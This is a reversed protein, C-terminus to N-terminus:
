RLKKNLRLDVLVQAEKPIVVSFEGTPDIFGFKEGDDAYARGDRFSEVNLFRKEIVTNGFYDIIKWKGDELVAGLGKNFDRAGRYKFDVVKGGGRNIIGWVEGQSVKDTTGVMCFGEVFDYAFDYDANIVLEGRPNIFGWKGLINVRAYGDVFRTVEDYLFDIVVEGRRNIFGFRAGSDSMAALGESFPSGFGSTDPWTIVMRGLTDVYGRKERNMVWALGESYDTADLYNKPVIMKGKKNIFGFLRYESEKDVVDAIMAMGDHFFRVEDCMPVAVEGKDNMFAWFRASDAELYIKYFNETYGAVYVLKIPNFMARGETDIIYWLSDIKYAALPQPQEAKLVATSLVSIAAFLLFFKKM